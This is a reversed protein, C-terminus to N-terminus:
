GANIKCGHGELMLAIMEAQALRLESARKRHEDESLPFKAEAAREHKAAASGFCEIALELLEPRAWARSM